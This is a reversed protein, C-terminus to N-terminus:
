FRAVLKDLAVWAEEPVETRMLEACQGAEEPTSIGVVVCAVAPHRLPFRIAAEPLTLGHAQCARALAKARAVVDLPAPGHFWFSGDEPWPRALLGSNFPAAAVVSVGRRHCEDLLPQGSRELLSWRGALMVADVDAQEVIRLLPQWNNMGAGVAGVLGQERLRCLAPLAQTIAEDLHEDPDHVYVIDARELGLRQLSGELSRRVGDASFDFRRTLEDAVAFGGASLDSGCPHPNPVLLRGVKTSVAFGQRPWRSLVAALRRESLGLGYHPATDFYRVGVDWSAQVAALATDDAVAVHVNGIQAGGFGLESVRVDTRGLQRTGLALM